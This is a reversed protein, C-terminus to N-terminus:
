GMNKLRLKVCQEQTSHPIDRKIREIIPQCTQLASNISDANTHWVWHLNVCNGGPSYTVLVIPVDLGNKLAEMYEYRRKRDEPLMNTDQLLVPTDSGAYTIEECLSQLTSPVTHRQQLFQVSLSNEISRVQEQSHHNTFTRHKKVCLIDSYKQLSRALIEVEQKFAKWEPRGWFGAQLHQFLRQSNSRM